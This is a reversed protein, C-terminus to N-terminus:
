IHILSLFYSKQILLRRTAARAPIPAPSLTALSAALLLTGVWFQGSRTDMAHGGDYDIRWSTWVDSARNM